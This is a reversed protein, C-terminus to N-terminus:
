ATATRNIPRKFVERKFNASYSPRTKLWAFVDAYSTMLSDQTIVRFRIALRLFEDSPKSFPYKASEVTIYARSLDLSSILGTKARLKRKSIEESQVSPKHTSPLFSLCVSSAM